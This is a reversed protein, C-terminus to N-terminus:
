SCGAEPLADLAKLIRDVRAHMLEITEAALAPNGYALGDVVASAEEIVREADDIIGLMFQRRWYLAPSWPAVSGGNM